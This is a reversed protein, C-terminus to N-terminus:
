TPVTYNFRTLPIIFFFYMKYEDGQNTAYLYLFKTSVSITSINQQIKYAFKLYHLLPVHITATHEAAVFPHCKPSFIQVHSM